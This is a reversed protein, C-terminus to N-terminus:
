ELEMTKLWAQMESIDYGRSRLLTFANKARSQYVNKELVTSCIFIMLYNAYGYNYYVQENSQYQQPLTKYFSLFKEPQYTRLLDTGYVRIFYDYLDQMSLIDKLYEMKSEAYEIRQEANCFSIMLVYHPLIVLNAIEPYDEEAKVLEKFVEVSPEEKQYRKFVKQVPIMKRALESPNYVAEQVTMCYNTDANVGTFPLEEFPIYARAEKIAELLEDTCEPCTSDYVANFCYGAVWHAIFEDFNRYDDKVKKVIPEILAYGEQESIYGAGIGWRIISISRAQIWAEIGHVGLKDKMAQVMYMRSVATVTLNELLGIELVSLDPYKELKKELDKYLEAQEGQKLENFREMLDEYNFIEWNENLVEIGARTKSNLIIRNSFDLHYQRNRQFINSSCAIAFQETESLNNWTKRYFQEFFDEHSLSYIDSYTVVSQANVYFISILFIIIFVFSKKM